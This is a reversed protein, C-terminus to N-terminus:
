PRGPDGRRRNRAQGHAQRRLAPVPAPRGRAAIRPYGGGPASPKARGAFPERRGGEPERSRAFAPVDQRRLPLVAQIQERATRGLGNRFGGQDIAVLVWRRLLGAGLKSGNEPLVHFFSERRRSTLGKRM